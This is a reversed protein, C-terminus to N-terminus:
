ELKEFLKIFNQEKIAGSYEFGLPDIAYIYIYAFADIPNYNRLTIDYPETELTIEKSRGSIWPNKVSITSYSIPESEAEVIKQDSYDIVIQSFFACDTIDKGSNNKITATIKYVIGSNYYSNHVFLEENKINEVSFMNDNKLPTLGYKRRLQWNSTINRVTNKELDVEWFKGREEITDVFSVKYTKFETVYDVNWKYQINKKNGDEITKQVEVGYTKGTKSDLTTKVIEIIKNKQAEQQEFMKINKLELLEDSITKYKNQLSSIQVLHSQRQESNEYYLKIVVFVLLVVIVSLIFNLRSFKIKKLFDDFSSM